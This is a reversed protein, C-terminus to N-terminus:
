TDLFATLATLFPGPAEAHLWHGVDPIVEFQANPFQAVFLPHHAPTVYDSAGGSIL